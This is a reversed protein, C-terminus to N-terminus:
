SDQHVNKVKGSVCLYKYRRQVINESMWLDGAIRPWSVKNKRMQIIRADEEPSFVTVDNRASAMSENISHKPIFDDKVEITKTRGDPMITTFTGDLIDKILREVDM